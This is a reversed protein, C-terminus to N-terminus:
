RRELGWGIVAAAALVIGIGLVIPHVLVGILAILLAFALAIPWYSSYSHFTQEQM